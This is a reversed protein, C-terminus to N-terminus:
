RPPDIRSGFRTRAALGELLAALVQRAARSVGASTPEHTIRVCFAVTPDPWPAVGVYNAHYGLRWTAGVGTKMAVPFGPPALGVGTGYESVALMSRSLVGVGASDIVDRAPARALARPRSGLPAQEAEVLFPVPMRGEGAVVAAILAAHLPTLDTAELGISLDALQREDGTARVIRGAPGLGLDGGDFGWRRLEELLRARGVRLGLNAFAVNCSWAMAQDLGPIRGSPHPCWLTGGQYREAGTCTMEAIEADPDIGARLAAAATLLKSISAPERRQDFAPTGGAAATRPDSVAALVAGTRPALLVISGRYGALASQARRALDLDLSLRLGPSAPMAALAAAVAPPVWAPDIGEALVLRREPGLHGVRRGGRDRVITAEDPLALVAEVERGLGRSAFSAPRARVRERAAGREGDEVALAARYVGALPHGTREALRTLARVGALRGERWALDLLLALDSAFAPDEPAHPDGEAKETGDLARALVLGAAARRGLPPWGRYRAFVPAAAGADGALLVARAREIEARARAALAAVVAGAALGAGLSWVLVRPRVHLLTGSLRLTTLGM